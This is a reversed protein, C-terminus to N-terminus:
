DSQERRARVALYLQHATIVAALWALGLFWAFLVDTFWHHGLFVRTLGTTIVFLTAVSLTIVRAWRRKQRLVLLYAIIGIIAVANLTHGSPFSASYEYPPVADSLPPRDRGFILKGAVTMLLSGAGSAAILIVPTWSRRRLSLIVIAAIAILPMGYTSAINTYWTLAIDAGPSRLSIALDLMPRDLGAVGDEDTVADYVEAAAVSLAFFAALGIGLIILLIGNPGLRESLKAAADAIRGWMSATRAPPAQRDQALEGSVGTETQDPADPIARPDNGDSAPQSEPQGQSIRSDPRTM